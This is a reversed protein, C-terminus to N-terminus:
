NSQCKLDISQQRVKTLAPLLIAILVAIIAIVVLLEVLTFGRGFPGSKKMVMEKWTRRGFAQARQGNGEAGRQSITRTGCESSRTTERGMRSRVFSIVSCIGNSMDMASCFM